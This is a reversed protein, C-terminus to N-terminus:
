YVDSNTFHKGSLNDISVFIQYITNKVNETVNTNSLQSEKLAIIYVSYADKKLRNLANALEDTFKHPNPEYWTDKNLMRDVSEKVIRHLDTETLRILKKKMQRNCNINQKNNTEENDNRYVEDAVKFLAMLVDDDISDEYQKPNIPLDNMDFYIIKGGKFVLAVVFKTPDQIRKNWNCIILIRTGQAKYAEFKNDNTRNICWIEKIPFNMSEEVTKFEGISIIGNNFFQNPCWKQKDIENKQNKGQM